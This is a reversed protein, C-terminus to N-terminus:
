TQLLYRIRAWINKVNFLVYLSFLPLCPWLFFLTFLYPSFARLSSVCISELSVVIVVVAVVIFDRSFLSLLLGFLEIIFFASNLFALYTAFCLPTPVLIQHLTPPTQICFRGDRRWRTFCGM